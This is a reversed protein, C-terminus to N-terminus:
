AATVLIWVPGKARAAAKLRETMTERGNQRRQKITENMEESQQTEYKYNL